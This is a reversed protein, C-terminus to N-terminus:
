HDIFGFLSRTKVIAFGGQFPYALSYKPEIAYQGTKDIFGYLNSEAVPALEESFAGGFEFKSAIVTKGSKDIFALRGLTANRECQILRDGVEILSVGDNTLLVNHSCFPVSWLPQGPKGSAAGAAAAASGCGEVRGQRRDVAGARTEMHIVYNHNAS